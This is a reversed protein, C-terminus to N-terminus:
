PVPRRRLRVPGVPAPRGGAAERGRAPARPGRVPAARSGSLQHAPGVLATPYTGLDARGGSPERTTDAATNTAGFTRPHGGDRAHQENSEDHRERRIKWVMPPRVVACSPPAARDARAM